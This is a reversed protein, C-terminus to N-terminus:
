SESDHVMTTLFLARAWKTQMDHSKELARDRVYLGPLTPSKIKRGLPKKEINIKKFYTQM